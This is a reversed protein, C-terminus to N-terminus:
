VGYRRKIEPTWPVLHDLVTGAAQRVALSEVMAETDGGTLGSALLAQGQAAEKAVRGLSALPVVPREGQLCAVLRSSLAEERCLRGSIVIERVEPALSLQAAVTKRIGEEMMKWATAAGPEGAVLLRAFDAPELTGDGAVDRVGGQFLHSKQVRGLLYALEGDMAGPSRFGPAGASGGVGDIIQGDVVTVVSTYAGGVEVLVLSVRSYPLQLRRAQDYVALATCGLKDATGMDIRNIKRWAPVTPLHIIGPLFFLPLGRDRTLQIILQIAELVDIGPREAKEVLTLLFLDREELEAVKLLPLGYGSPGAIADLPGQAALLEEVLGPERAVRASPVTEDLFVKGEEWGFFDFSVTGPDIGIVRTM